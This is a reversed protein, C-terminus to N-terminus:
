QNETRLKSHKYGYAFYIILGIGFWLIFWFWNSHNMGTLLYLCSVLGMLPILSFNKLFALIALIFTIILFITVSIRFEGEKPDNWDLLTHFFEPIWTYFGVLAGVM